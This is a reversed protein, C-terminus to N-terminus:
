RAVEPDTPCVLFLRGDHIAQIGSIPDFCVVKPGVGPLLEQIPRPGSVGVRQVGSSRHCGSMSQVANRWAGGVEAPPTKRKSRGSLAGRCAGCGMPTSRSSSLPLFLTALFFAGVSTSAKLPSPGLRVAQNSAGPVQSTSSPRAGPSIRRISATPWERKM